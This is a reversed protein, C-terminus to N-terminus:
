YKVLQTRYAGAQVIYTGAPLGTLSVTVSAGPKAQITRLKRGMIDYLQVDAYSGNLMEIRVWEGAPNPYLRFSPQMAVERVASIAANFTDQRVNTQHQLLDKNYKVLVVKGLENDTADGFLYLTKGGDALIKQFNTQEGIMFSDIMESDGNDNNIRYFVPPAAPLPTWLTQPGTLYTYQQSDYMWDTAEIGNYHLTNWITGGSRMCTQSRSQTDEVGVFAHSGNYNFAGYTLDNGFTMPEGRLTSDVEELQGTIRHYRSWIYKRINYGYYLNYLYDGEFYTYGGGFGAQITPYTWINAAEKSIYHLSDFAQFAFDGSESWFAKEIYDPTALRIWQLQDNADYRRMLNGVTQFYLLFKEDQNNIHFFFANGDHTITDIMVTNGAPNVKWLLIKSIYNGSNDVRFISATLYSNGSQDLQLYKDSVFGYAPLKLMNNWAVTGNTNYRALTIKLDNFSSGNTQRSYGSILAASDPTTAAALTYFHDNGFNTFTRAWERHPQAQGALGAAALIFTFLLKKM